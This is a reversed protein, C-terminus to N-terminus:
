EHDKKQFYSIFVMSIIATVAEPPLLGKIVAYLFALGCVITLFYRGSLAKDKINM